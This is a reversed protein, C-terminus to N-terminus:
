YSVYLHRNSFCKSVIFKQFDLPLCHRMELKRQFAVASYHLGSFVVDSCVPFALKVQGHIQFAKHSDKLLHRDQTLGLPHAHLFLLTVSVSAKLYM